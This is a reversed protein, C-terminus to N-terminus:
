RDPAEIRIMCRVSRKTKAARKECAAITERNIRRMEAAEAVFQWAEPDDARMMRIGAEWLSPEGIIHRAMNEPMHWGQPLTRLVVGPLFSWLLAGAVLGALATWLLRRRQEGVATMTGGLREIRQAASDFRERAREIAAHDSKRAEVGAASIREAMAEPTIQMAPSHAFTNIAARMKELLAAMDALTEGYDPIADRKAALGSVAAELLGVKEGLAAFAQVAPDAGPVIRPASIDM